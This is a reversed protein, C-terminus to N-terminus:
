QAPPAVVDALRQLVDTREQECVEPAEDRMPDPAIWRSTTALEAQRADGRVQLAIGVRCKAPSGLKADSSAYRMGTLEGRTSDVVDM